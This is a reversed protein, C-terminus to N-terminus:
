TAEGYFRKGLLGQPRLVLILLFMVFAVIEQYNVGLLTAAFAQILGYLLGALVAGELSGIGGLVTIVFVSGIFTLGMSPSIPFLMSAFTGAAGALAAGAGATLAYVQLPDIGMLRATEKDLATALIAQGAKTRNLFVYFAGALTLALLFVALRVYPILLPGVAFSRSTYSTNVSHLDASFILMCINVLILDLGFTLVLSLLLSTRILRNLLLRQVGYGLVFLTAMSLPLSLFPDMGLATFAVYSIYAGVMIFSGHAMNIIGMVGWVMSFGLAAIAYLGGLLLGNVITQGLM